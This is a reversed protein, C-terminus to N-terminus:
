SAAPSTAAALKARLTINEMTIATINALTQLYEVTETTPHVPRAWYVGIAGTPSQAGIPVIVLSKVFTPRYLDKPIRHDDNIDPVIVAQRHHMAWGSACQHMPFRKGKWLPAIADEDVYSCMEDERLIFSAGDARTLERAARRIIRTLDVLSYAMSVNQIAQILCAFAPNAPPDTFKSENM